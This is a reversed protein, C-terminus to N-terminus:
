NTLTRVRITHNNLINGSTEKIQLVTQTASTLTQFIFTHHFSGLSFIADTTGACMQLVYTMYYDTGAQLTHINVMVYTGLINLATDFGVNAAGDTTSLTITSFASNLYYGSGSFGHTSSGRVTYQSSVGLGETYHRKSMTNLQTQINSTVGSLYPLGVGSVSVVSSNTIFGSASSVLAYGYDVPAYGLTIKSMTIVASASIDANVLSNTLALKSYPIGAAGVIDSNVIGLSLNLKSYPIGAAGVIDGDVISNSLNLKSYSIAASADFYTNTLSLEDLTLNMNASIPGGGIVPTTTYITVASGVFPNLIIGTIVHWETGDSIVEIADNDGTIVYTASGDVLEASVPDITVTNVDPSIKKFFLRRNLMSVATPLTVTLSASTTDCLLYLPTTRTVITENTTITDVDIGILRDNLDNFNLRIKEWLSNTNPNGEVIEASTIASYTM